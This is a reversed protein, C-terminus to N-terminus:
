VGGMREMFKKEAEIDTCLRDVYKLLKEIDRGNLLEQATLEEINKVSTLMNKLKKDREKLNGSYSFWKYGDDVSKRIIDVSRALRKITMDESTKLESKQLYQPDDKIGSLLVFLDDFRSLYVDRNIQAKQLERVAQEVDQTKCFTFWTVALGLVSSLAAIFNFLNLLVEAITHNGTIM